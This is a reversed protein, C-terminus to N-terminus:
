HQLSVIKSNKVHCNCLGKKKRSLHLIIKLYLDFSSVNPFLTEVHTNLDDFSVVDSCNKKHKVVILHETPINYKQSIEDLLGQLTINEDVVFKESFPSLFLRLCALSM